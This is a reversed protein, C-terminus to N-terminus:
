VNQTAKPNLLSTLIGKGKDLAILQGQELTFIEHPHFDELQESQLVIFDVETLLSLLYVFEPKPNDGQIYVLLESGNDQALHRISRLVDNTMEQSQDLILLIYNRDKLAQRLAHTHNEDFIKSDADYELLRRAIEPLTVQVCGFREISIGAAINALQTASGMDLGNALALSITALVTDGAGTVDKVEKSRVPFDNRKGGPEFLSIGAESRTILLTDVHTSLLITSAVDDLTASLPLKAAAYAESLNPKLITAGRYKSFDTGKPDIILPVGAKKAIQIAAALIPTTLFGKGYDSVAVVQVTPIRVNLQEIVLPELASDLSSITEFDVRLLQQGGAILRNKVPTRYRPELILGSADIGDKGLERHLLHGEADDGIRGIVFVKAGMTAINKAANGAGGPKTEQKLVELVQVPAEPSIRKVHGSTYTDVFFDGLVLATFPKISRFSKSLKVM